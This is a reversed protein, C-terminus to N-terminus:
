RKRALRLLRQVDLILIVSGDGMETAGDFEPRAVLPDTLTHVVVERMDIVQDVMLVQQGGNNEQGFEHDESAILGFMKRPPSASNGAGMLTALRHLVLFGNAEQIMEGSEARTIKGSEIEIVREVADRPVAFREKGARVFLVDVIVLTLPLLLKFTTGQGLTTEMRIRGGFSRVGRNVVDLGVGRGSGMDAEGRTTFGPQAMIEFAEAAALPEDAAHWGLSVAREAVHDLDVGRGDDTVAVLIHDGETVASLTLTGQEPKGLRAREAPLEIGHTIANRVLHILPDLLREVLQKDVETNEGQIVLRVEKQSTRALDRVVLPMRNFTEALPVM